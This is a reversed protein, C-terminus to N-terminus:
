KILYINNSIGVTDNDYFGDIIAANLDDKISVNYNFKNYTQNTTSCSCALILLFLIYKM